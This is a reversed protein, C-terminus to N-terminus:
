FVLPLLQKVKKFTHNKLTKFNITPDKFEKLINWSEEVILSYFITNLLQPIKSSSWSSNLIIKAFEKDVLTKTIFKEVILEEVLARETISKPNDNAHKLKFETTVIKAWVINNFRNKYNYNKIVIGEGIAETSQLLYNNQEVLDELQDITPNEIVQVAPIYKINFEKLPASYISYPIYGLDENCRNIVDFVYFNRWASDEYGKLTHPVLWEGFLRVNPYVEFFSKINPDQLAWKYFGANDKDLSLERNRSGAKIVGNEVWLSSNTGDIKPFVYCVGELIGETEITGLREVHQYKKFNSM